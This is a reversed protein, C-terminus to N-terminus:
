NMWDRISRRVTQKASLAEGGDGREAPLRSRKECGLPPSPSTDELLLVCKTLPPIQSWARPFPSAPSRDQWAM